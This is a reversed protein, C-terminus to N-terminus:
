KACLNIFKEVVKQAFHRVARARDRGPLDTLKKVIEPRLFRPNTVKAL